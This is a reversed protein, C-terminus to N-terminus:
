ECDWPEVAPPNMKVKTIEAVAEAQTIMGDRLQYYLEQELNQRTAKVHKHEPWLNTEQNSGGLALPIFHDVTYEGRCHDPIGYERFIKTKRDWSVNRVCYAIQENYRRGTYDRDQETCLEGSTVAPDPKITNQPTPRAWLQISFAAVMAIMWVKM